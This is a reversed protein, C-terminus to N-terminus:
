IWFYIQVLHLKRSLRVLLLIWLSWTVRGTLLSNESGIQSRHCTFDSVEVFKNYSNNLMRLM